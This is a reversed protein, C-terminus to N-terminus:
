NGIIEGVELGKLLFTLLPSDSSYEQSPRVSRLVGKLLVICSPNDPIDLDIIRRKLPKRFVISNLIYIHFAKEHLPSWLM